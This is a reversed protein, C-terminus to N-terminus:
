AEARALNKVGLGFCVVGVALLIACPKLLEVFSFGRWIAGELALIGWKIPSFDSATLLWSPMAILPVMGGGIMALPTMIGWGAGAVGQETKGLTAMLMMMGVFCCATCVLALLLGAPNELRVKFILHGILLLFIAVGVCALFCAFGKGALLQGRSLPAIRLRLFTGAVRESVVSIAFAAVCGIFAWIIASPFFIEFASLPGSGERAVEVQDIQLPRWKSGGGLAKTDLKAVAADMLLGQLYGAEAKRRPDIGLEVKPVRGSFFGTAKGFGAQLVVFAALDGKRVQERAEGRSLRQVKLADKKSELEELFQRSGASHDEDVVAVALPNRGSGGGGMISGFFLAFMMPFAVIWFLGFWDRSLLRLDKLALTVIAHM